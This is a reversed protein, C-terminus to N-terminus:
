PTDVDDSYAHDVMVALNTGRIALDVHPRDHVGLRQFSCIDLIPSSLGPYPLQISHRILHIVFESSRMKCYAVRTLTVTLGGLQSLLFITKELPSLTPLLLLLPLIRRAFSM